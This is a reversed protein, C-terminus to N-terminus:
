GGQSGGTGPPAETVVAPPPHLVLGGTIWNSVATTNTQIWDRVAVQSKVLQLYDLGKYKQVVELLPQRMIMADLLFFEVLHEPSLVRTDRFFWGDQALVKAKDLETPSVMGILSPIQLIVQGDPSTETKGRMLEWSVLHVVDHFSFNKEYLRQIFPFPSLQWHAAVWM